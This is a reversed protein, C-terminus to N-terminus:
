NELTMSGKGQVMYIKTSQYKRGIDIRDLRNDPDCDVVKVDIISSAYRGVLRIILKEVLPSGLRRIYNIHPFNTSKIIM